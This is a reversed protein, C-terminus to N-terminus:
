LNEVLEADAGENNDTTIVRVGISSDQGLVVLFLIGAHLNDTAWLSDVAVELVIHDFSRETEVSSCLNVRFNDTINLAVAVRGLFVPM